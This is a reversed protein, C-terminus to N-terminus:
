CKLKKKKKGVSGRAEVKEIYTRIMPVKCSTDGMTVNVKGIRDGVEKCRETLEPIAAGLAIVFGNMCYKTRNLSSHITEEVRNLL